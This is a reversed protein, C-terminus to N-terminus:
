DARVAFVIAPVDLIGLAKPRAKVKADSQKVYRIAAPLSVRRASRRRSRTRGPDYVGATTTAHDVGKARFADVIAADQIHFLGLFGAGVWAEAELM